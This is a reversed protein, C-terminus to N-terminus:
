WAVGSRSELFAVDEGYRQSLRAREEEFLPDFRTGDAYCAVLHDRAVAGEVGVCKTMAEVTPARNPWKDGDLRFGKFLEPGVLHRMRTAVADREFLTLRLPSGPFARVVDAVLDPWGRRVSLLKERLDELPPMRRAYVAMM